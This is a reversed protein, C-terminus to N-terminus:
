FLFLFSSDLSPKPSRFDFTVCRYGVEFGVAWKKKAIVGRVYGAHRTVEDEM